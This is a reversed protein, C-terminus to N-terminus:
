LDSEKKRCKSCLRQGVPVSASEIWAERISDRTKGCMAAGTSAEVRHITKQSPLRGFFVGSRGVLSPDVAGYGLDQLIAYAERIYFERDLDPPCVNAQPLEMLPVAGESRPVNNNNKLYNLHGTRATSYYWRIAKGIATGDMHAGGTVRRVTLFKRIDHCGAVTQEIPVRKALFLVAAESSIECNPNKKLGSAGPLGPGCPGVAGKTKFTGNPKVAVYTNVDRSYLGRYQTEETTLGTVEEWEWVCDVFAGRDSRRVKSVIGDTNASVVQVGVGELREVLMLMALQGTLTTQIMLNPSYLVSYPSGLKGYSGNLTIKLSEAVTKDGKKKAAIRRQYIREYVKLFDDGLHKPVLKNQMIINPYYSTVDRDILVFEDNTEYCVSEESSHLGGLGMRYVSSGFAIQKDALYKPMQVVGGADIVFQTKRV